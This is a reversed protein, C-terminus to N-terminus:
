PSSRGATPSPAWSTSRSSGPTSSSDASRPKKSSDSGVLEPTTATRNRLLVKVALDRGLDVDGARAAGCGHRRPRDRRPDPLPRCPRSTRSPEAHARTGPGGAGLPAGEALRRQEGLLVDLRRRRGEDFRRKRGIRRDAPGHGGPLGPAARRVSPERRHSTRPRRASRSRPRLSVGGAAARGRYEVSSDVDDDGKPVSDDDIM